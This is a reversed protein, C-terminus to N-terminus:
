VSIVSLKQNKLLVEKVPTIKKLKKIDEKHSVFTIVIGKKGMRGTRGARHIYTSKERPLDFNVILELDDIDIGRAVIDTALLLTLEQNKFKELIVKRDKVNIDSALSMASVKNYRLREEAAGLDSLQNFFVLGHLEPVNALKRLYEIRNRKEVMMYYHIIHHTADDSLDILTTNEALHKQDIQKTASLYIMQYNRPAYHCIKTVFSLQSDSLLADYEDLVITNISMMKIKKLKILELLRGPTGIIIEPGKKLREIQRKQSAGSLFLQPTLDLLNGWEKAVDFLQGALESNPALILLQQGQHPKIKLLTPWMYALTKGTGTPSVGLINDGSYISDFLATQISTFQSFQLDELKKQWISPFQKIM